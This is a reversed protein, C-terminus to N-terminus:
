STRGLVPTPGQFVPFELSGCAIVFSVDPQGVWSQGVIENTPQISISNPGIEWLYAPDVQDEGVPSVQMHQLEVSVRRRAHEVEVHKGRPLQLLTPFHTHLVKGELGGGWLDAFGQHTRQELVPVSKQLYNALGIALQSIATMRSVSTEPRGVEDSNSAKLLNNSPRPFLLGIDKLRLLNRVIGASQYSDSRRLDVAALLYIHYVFAQQEIVDHAFPNIRRVRGPAGADSSQLAGIRIVCDAHRWREQGPHDSVLKRSASILCGVKSCRSLSAPSM